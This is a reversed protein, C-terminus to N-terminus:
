SSRQGDGFSRPQKDLTTGGSTTLLGTKTIGLTSRNRMAAATRAKTAEGPRDAIFDPWLPRLASRVWAEDDDHELASALRRAAYELREVARPRDAVKIPKSIGAPDPTLRQRLDRAGREWMAHLALPEDMDKQVFMLGFAELNFSCLPPVATRKNEAKALRIARARTVRLVKPDSRTTLLRTHEEPDSPDWREAETNPIWLGPKNVRELGVVLDVTPDEGGPLPEHFAILIARKTIRFTVKPYDPRLKKRLHDRMEEVVPTPGDQVASDPGLTSHSRRDLVVGADADLGKDRQHIPCNATGHALSGSGFSHRAGRFGEAAPRVADRRERTEKLTADDPAIQARVDDLVQRTFGLTRGKHFSDWVKHLCRCPHDRRLPLGGAPLIDTKWTRRGL